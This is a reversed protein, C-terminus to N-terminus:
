KSRLLERRQSCRLPSIRKEVEAEGCGMCRRQQQRNKEGPRFREPAGDMACEAIHPIYVTL